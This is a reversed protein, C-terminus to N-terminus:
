PASAPLARSKGYKDLMSKVALFVPQVDLEKMCRIDNPCGSQWHGIPSTHNCFLCPVDAFLGVAPSFRPMFFEPKLAGYLGVLPVGVAGSIHTPGSDV